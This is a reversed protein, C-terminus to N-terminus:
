SGNVPLDTAPGTAIVRRKSSLHWRDCESCLYHRMPGLEGREAARTIARNALREHWYIRKGTSCTDTSM